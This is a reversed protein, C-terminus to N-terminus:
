IGAVPAYNLAKAAEPHAFCYSFFANLASSSPSNKPVIVYTTAMMLPTNATSLNNQKAYAYEVYGISGPITKVFNAVGANGKAGVGTPWSVTTDSGITSKFQPSAKDLYQTFNYTTGSGDARYVVTIAQHPLKLEPNLKQIASDDWYKIQGLYINALTMSDLTIRGNVKLNDSLVIQGRALPFQKWKEIM